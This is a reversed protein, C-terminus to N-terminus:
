FRIARQTWDWKRKLEDREKTKKQRLFCQWCHSYSCLYSHIPQIPFPTCSLWDCLSIIFARSDLDFHPLCSLPCNGVLEWLLTPPHCWPSFTVSRSLSLWHSFLLLCLHYFYLLQYFQYFCSHTNRHTWINTQTKAWSGPASVKINGFNWQTEWWALTLASACVFMCVWFWPM